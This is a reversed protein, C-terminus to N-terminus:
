KEELPADVKLEIDAEKRSFAEIDKVPKNIL